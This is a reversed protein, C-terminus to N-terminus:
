VAMSAPRMSRVKKFVMAGLAIVTGVLVMMGVPITAYSTTVTACDMCVAASDFTLQNASSCISCCSNM